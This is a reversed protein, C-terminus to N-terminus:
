ETALLSTLALDPRSTGPDSLSEPAQSRMRSAERRRARLRSLGPTKMGPIKTWVSRADSTDLMPATCTVRPSASSAGQPGGGSHPARAKTKVVERDNVPLADSSEAAAEERAALDESETSRLYSRVSTSAIGRACGTRPSATVYTMDTATIVSPRKRTARAPM